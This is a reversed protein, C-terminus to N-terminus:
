PRAVSIRASLSACIYTEYTGFFTDVPLVYAYAARTSRAFRKPMAYMDHQKTNEIGPLKVLRMHRAPTVNTRYYIDIYAM